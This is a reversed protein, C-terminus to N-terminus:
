INQGPLRPHPAACPYRVEPPQRDQEVWFSVMVNLGEYCLTDLLPEAGRVTCGLDPWPCRLHDLFDSGGHAAPLATLLLANQQHM